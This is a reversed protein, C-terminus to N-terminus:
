ALQCHPYLITIGLDHTYSLHGDLVGWAPASLAELYSGLKGVSSLPITSLPAPVGRRHVGLSDRRSVGNDDDRLGHMPFTVV